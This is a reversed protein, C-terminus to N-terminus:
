TNDVVGNLQNDLITIQERLRDIQDSLNTIKSNDNISNAELEAKEAELESIQEILNPITNDIIRPLFEEFEIDIVQNFKQQSIKEAHLSINYRLEDIEKNNNIITQGLSNKEYPQYRTPVIERPNIEGTFVKNKDFEHLNYITM